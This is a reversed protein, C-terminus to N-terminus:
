GKLKKLYSICLIFLLLTFLFMLLKLIKVIGYDKTKKFLEIDYGSLVSFGGTSGSSSLLLGLVLLLFALSYIVAVM